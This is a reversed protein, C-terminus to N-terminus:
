PSSEDDMGDYSPSSGFQGYDRAFGGMGFTADMRRELSHQDSPPVSYKQRAVGTKTENRENTKKKNHQKLKQLQKKEAAPIKAKKKKKILVIPNKVHLNKHHTILETKTKFIELCTECLDAHPYLRRVNKLASRKENILRQNEVMVELTLPNINPVEATSGKEMERREKEKPQKSKIEKIKPKPHFARVHHVFEIPDLFIEKCKPCFYEKKIITKPVEPFTKITLKLPQIEASQPQPRVRGDSRIPLARSSVLGTGDCRFCNPNDGGCTCPYKEM